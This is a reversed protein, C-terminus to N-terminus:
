TRHSSNRSLPGYAEQSTAEGKEGGKLPVLCILDYKLLWMIYRNAEDLTVGYRNVVFAVIDEFRMSTDALNAERLTCLIHNIVESNLFHRMMRHTKLSDGSDLKSLGRSTIRIRTHGHIESSPYHAFTHFYDPRIYGM